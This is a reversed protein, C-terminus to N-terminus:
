SPTTGALSTFYNAEKKMAGEIFEFFDKKNMDFIGLNFENVREAIVNGLIKNAIPINMPECKGGENYKALTVDLPRNIEVPNEVRNLYFFAIRQDLFQEPTLNRKYDDKKDDKYNLFDKYWSTVSPVYMRDADRHAKEPYSHLPLGLYPDDHTLILKEIETMDNEPMLIKKEKVLSTLIEKTKEAGILRHTIRKDKNEWDAEEGQKIEMFSNGIDHFMATPVLVRRNLKPDKSMKDYNCMTIMTATVLLNHMPRYWSGGQFFDEKNITHENLKEFMFKEEYSLHSELKKNFATINDSLIKKMGDILETRIKPNNYDM